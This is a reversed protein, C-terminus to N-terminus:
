GEEEELRRRRAKKKKKKKKKGGMALLRLSPARHRCRNASRDSVDRQRLSEYNRRTFDPWSATRYLTVGTFVAALQVTTPNRNAAPHEALAGIARSGRISSPEALRLPFKM